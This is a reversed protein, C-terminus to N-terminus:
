VPLPTPTALLRTIMHARRRRIKWVAGDACLDDEYRGVCYFESRGREDTRYITFTSFARATAVDISIEDVAVLHTRAAPDRVHLPWERFLDALEARNLSLWVMDRGIEASTTGLLYHGDTTFLEVYEAFREDDLLRGSRAILLRISERDDREM